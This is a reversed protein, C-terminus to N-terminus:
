IQVMQLIQQRLLSQTEQKMSIHDRLLLLFKTSYDVIKEFVVDGLSFNMRYQMHM